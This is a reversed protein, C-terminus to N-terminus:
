ISWINKNQERNMDSINGNWETGLVNDTGHIEDSSLNLNTLTSNTKLSESMMRAGEAGIKNGIWENKNNM